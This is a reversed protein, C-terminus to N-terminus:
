TQARRLTKQVQWCRQFLASLLSVYSKMVFSWGSWEDEKGSYIPPKELKQLDEDTAIWRTDGVCSSWQVVEVNNHHQHIASTSTHSCTHHLRFHLCPAFLVTSKLM